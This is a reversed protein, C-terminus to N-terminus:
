GVRSIRRETTLIGNLKYELITIEHQEEPTLPRKIDMLESLRDLIKKMCMPITVTNSQETRTDFVKM